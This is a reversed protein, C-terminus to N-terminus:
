ESISLFESILGLLKPTSERFNEMYVTMDELLLFPKREEKGIQMGKIEEEQRATSATTESVFSLASPPSFHRRPGRGLSVQDKVLLHSALSLYKINSEPLEKGLSNCNQDCHVKFKTLHKKQLKNKLRHVQHIM